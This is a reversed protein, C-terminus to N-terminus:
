YELSPVVLEALTLHLCKIAKKEVQFFCCLELKLFLSIVICMEVAFFKM